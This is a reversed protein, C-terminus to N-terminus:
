KIRKSSRSLFRGGGGLEPCGLGWGFAQGTRDQGTQKEGEGGKKKRYSTVQVFMIEKRSVVHIFGGGGGLGVLATKRWAKTAQDHLLCSLVLCFVWFGLLLASTSQESRYM